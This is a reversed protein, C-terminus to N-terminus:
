RMADIRRRRESCNRNIADLENRNSGLASLSTSTASSLKSRSMSRVAIRKGPAASRKAFSASTKKKSDTLSM